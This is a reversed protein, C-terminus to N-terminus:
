KGKENRSKNTSDVSKRQFDVKKGASNMRLSSNADLYSSKSNNNYNENANENDNDIDMKIKISLINKLYLSIKNMLNKYYNMM